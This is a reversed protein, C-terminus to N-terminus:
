GGPEVDSDAHTVISDTIASLMRRDMRINAPPIAYFAVAARPGLCTM